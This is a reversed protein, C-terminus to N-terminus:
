IRGGSEMAVTMKRELDLAFQSLQKKSEFYGVEFNTGPRFSAFVTYLKEILRKYSIRARESKACALACTTFPISWPCPWSKSGQWRNTTRHPHLGLRVIGTHGFGIRMMQREGQILEFGTAALSIERDGLSVRHGKRMAAQPAWKLPKRFNKPIYFEIVKAMVIEKIKHDPGL